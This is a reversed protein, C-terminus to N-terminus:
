RTSEAVRISSRIRWQKIRLANLSKHPIFPQCQSAPFNALLYTENETYNPCKRLGHTRLWEAVAKPSKEIEAAIEAHTKHRYHKARNTCYGSWPRM